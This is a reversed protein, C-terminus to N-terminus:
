LACEPFDLPVDRYGNSSHHSSVTYKILHSVQVVAYNSSSLKGGSCHKFQSFLTEVASGSLQIPSIFHDPYEYLDRDEFITHGNNASCM